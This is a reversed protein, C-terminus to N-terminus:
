SSGRGGQPLPSPLPREQGKPLMNMVWDMVDGGDRIAAVTGRLLGTVQAVPLLVFRLCESCNSRLKDFSSPSCVLGCVGLEAMIRELGVSVPKRRPKHADHGWARGFADM